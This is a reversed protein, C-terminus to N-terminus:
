VNPAVPNGDLHLTQQYEYLRAAHSQQKVIVKGLCRRPCSSMTLHELRQAVAAEYM